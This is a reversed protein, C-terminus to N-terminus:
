MIACLKLNLSTENDEILGEFHFELAETIQQKVEELTVGTAVCGPVDPV